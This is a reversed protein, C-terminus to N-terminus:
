KLIIKKVRISNGIQLRVIYIGETKNITFSNLGNATFQKSLVKRGMSDFIEIQSEANLNDSKIFVKNSYSYIINNDGEIEYVNTVGFFHLMFRANNDTPNGTFTYMSQDRLNIMNGTKLDELYIDSDLYFSEIGEALIHFTSNVGAKFNMPLALSEYVHPLNNTSFEEGEILTWIQPATSQGFMKHSDFAWDFTSEADDRFSITTRDYFGNADNNVLLTLTEDLNSSNGSKYNNSTSSHVRSDSPITISNSANSVQVFFGNTSPIIGNASIDSYSGGAEDYVKAVGGVNTLAWNGDNWYVASAFPNGLLHWGNGMPDPTKSLNTFTVDTNNLTGTFNNTVNNEYAVMYGLGNQMTTGPFNSGNYNRWLYDDEDWAYLDNNTGTPDFDSSAITMNNVPSSILHWGDTNGTYQDFYRKVTATGSVTGDVIISGNGTPGSLVNFTAAADISLDNLVSLNKSVSISLTTSANLTLDYCYVKTDNIIPQNAATAITVDMSADPIFGNDWNAKTNWDTDSTGLWTVYNLHEGATMNVVDATRTIVWEAATWTTNPSGVSRKRVAKGDLYEWAKNTGDEDIVGYADILTGSSNNGDYYLYYGDDGNGSITNSGQDPASGYASSYASNSYAVTYTEGAPITGTLQINGFSGGNAQRALYWTESSFDIASSGLNYIEVYKSTYDDSPDTVESIILNTNTITTIGNTTPVTGDTKYDIATGSNTYPWIKFYYHTGQSLGTFTYAETNHVVNVQGSGDSIDTDDSQATGDDPVPFTGTTNIMILFSDAAVTGDNDSWTLPITSSTPSGVVFSAAHNTPETKHTTADDTVGSSYNTSGDVSWAKYYYQTGSTLGTHNYSTGSGNYIVTGGGTIPDGVSYSSGDTPTGFTGDPTWAVMVDDGNGNQTWGLDIQSTSATTATFATPNLVGGTATGIIEINDIAIDEDGSNLNFTIRIDLLSGTGTINQTFQVFTSTIATGDGLGDFDTDIRPEGNTGTIESEIWLLNSFSGSNDIDYEFHVYDAGDWDQNTGDDDEALYVKLQLSSYSSINIDDISLTVPLTAGEGDIDQAGFFYSGQINSVSYGGSINSGDTRIFFDNGGDTFETISTTYGGATEFDVTNITTQGYGFGALVVFLLLLYINKM